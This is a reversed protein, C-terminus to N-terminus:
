KRAPEQVLYFKIDPAESADIIKKIAQLFKCFDEWAIGETKNWEFYYGMFEGDTEPDSWGLDEREKFGQEEFKPYAAEYWEQSSWVRVELLM